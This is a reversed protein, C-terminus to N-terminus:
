NAGIRVIISGLGQNDVRAPVNLSKLYQELGEVRAWESADMKVGNADQLPIKIGRFNM